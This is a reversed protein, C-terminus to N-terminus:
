LEAVVDIPTAKTMASEAIRKLADEYSEHVHLSESTTKPKGAIRDILSERDDANGDAASRAQRILMVELNTRGYFESPPLGLAVALEDEATVYPMSAAAMAIETVNARTFVAVNRVIPNGQEDWTVIRQNM